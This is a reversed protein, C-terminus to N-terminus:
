QPFAAFFGKPRDATNRRRIIPELADNGAALEGRREQADLLNALIAAPHNSIDEMCAVPIQMRQNKEIVAIGILEAPGPGGARLDHLQTDVHAARKRSFM